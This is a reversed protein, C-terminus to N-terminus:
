PIQLMRCAWSIFGFGGSELVTSEQLRRRGEQVKSAERMFRSRDSGLDMVLESLDKKTDISVSQDTIKVYDGVFLAQRILEIGRSKLYQAINEHKGMQQRTDEFIAKIM